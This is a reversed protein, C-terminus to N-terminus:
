HINISIRYVCVSTNKTSRCKLITLRYLDAIIRLMNISSDINKSIGFRGFILLFISSIITKRNQFESPVDISYYVEVCEGVVIVCLLKKTRSV